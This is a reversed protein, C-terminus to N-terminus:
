WTHYGLTQAIILRDLADQGQSREWAKRARSAKREATRAKRDANSRM